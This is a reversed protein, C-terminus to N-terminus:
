LELPLLCSAKLVCALGCLPVVCKAQPPLFLQPTLTSLHPAPLHFGTSWIVAYALWEGVLFILRIELSSTGFAGAGPGSM